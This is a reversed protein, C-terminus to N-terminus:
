EAQDEFSDRAVNVMCMDLALPMKHRSTGFLAMLADCSAINSCLWQFSAESARATERSASIRGRSDGPSSRGKLLSALLATTAPMRKRGNRGQLSEHSVALFEEDLHVALTSTIPLKARSLAAHRKDDEGLVRVEHM